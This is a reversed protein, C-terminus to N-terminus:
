VIKVAIWARGDEMIKWVKGVSLKYEDFTPNSIAQASIKGNNNIPIIYDGVSAGYVNCPVQGSFAIRDVKLRAEELADGELNVGWTDGGVYSPNTSKVVFSVSDNFINTLEGNSNIGVIDGKSIDEEIAKNMYEAYDAGSANITGGANISRNTTGNKGVFITTGSTNFGESDTCNVRFARAGGTKQFNCFENGSSEIGLYESGRASEKNILVEGDSTIRMRETVDYPNNDTSAADSHTRFILHGGEDNGDGQTEIATLFYGDDNAFGISGVSGTTNTNARQIKIQATGSSGSVHLKTDPSTTGIGVYTNNFDISIIDNPYSGGGGIIGYGGSNVYAALGYSSGNREIYLGGARNNSAQDIHLATSPSTTGIGVNGGNFYSTGNALLRIKESGDLLLNLFGNDLDAGSDGYAGMKILDYDASSIELRDGDGVIHLKVDPDDTGIGVNGNGGNLYLINDTGNSGFTRFKINRVNALTTRQTASIILNNEASDDTIQLAHNSDGGIRANGFVDLDTTPSTTGIGVNGNNLIVLPFSSSAVNNIYLNNTNTYIGYKGTASGTRELTLQSNSSAASIHLKTSPSTTGIGVNGASTINLLNSADHTKFSLIDSNSGEVGMFWDRSDNAIKIYVDADTSADRIHLKEAPSTVGIGVNGGSAVVLHTASTNNATLIINDGTTKIFGGNNTTSGNKFNLQTSTTSTSEILAAIQVNSSNIHLFREPSDTGIGVNGSSNITMKTSGNFDFGLLNVPSYGIDWYNGLTDGANSEAFRITSTATSTSTDSDRITLIPNNGVIEVISDPSTTGIGVNGDTTVLFKNNINSLNAM